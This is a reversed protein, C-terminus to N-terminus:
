GDLREQELKSRVLGMEHMRYFLHNFADIQHSQSHDSPPKKGSLKEGDLKREAPQKILRAGKRAAMVEMMGIVRSAHMRSGSQQLARRKFLVFDEVVIMKVEPEYENSFQIMQEITLQGFTDYTGDDNFIAIGTIKGPDVGILKAM